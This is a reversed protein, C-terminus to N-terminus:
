SRLVIRNHMSSDLILDELLTDSNGIFNSSSRKIIIHKKAELYDVTNRCSALLMREFEALSGKHFKEVVCPRRNPLEFKSKNKQTQKPM